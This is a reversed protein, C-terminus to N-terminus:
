VVFSKWAMSKYSIIENNIFRFTNRKNDGFMEKVTFIRGITYPIYTINLVCLVIYLLRIRHSHYLSMVHM